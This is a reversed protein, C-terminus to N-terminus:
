FQREQRCYTETSWTRHNRCGSSLAESHLSLSGLLTHAKMFQMWWVTISQVCIVECMRQSQIEPNGFYYARYSCNNQAPIQGRRSLYTSNGMRLHLFIALGKTSRWCPQLRPGHGSSGRTKGPLVVELARTNPQNAEGQCCTYKSVSRDLLHRRSLSQTSCTRELQFDESKSSKEWMHCVVIVDTIVEFWLAM